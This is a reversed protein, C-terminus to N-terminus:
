AQDLARAAGVLAPSVDATIVYLPIPRLYAAMRGKAEFRERLASGPLLPLLRPVIGGGIYVGGRAGLTLALNGAVGGLLACFMAVTRVCLADSGDLARATIDAAACPAGGLAALLNELGQGSLAREASVHGFRERLRSIAREEEENAAPLSVHGGEGDLAIQVRGDGAFVLGSVGLGTGPGILGLPEGPEPAGGGFQVREHPGLAPLALALAQFDNIVILREFGLEARTAEISFTWHHNTMQVRDGTVPNAMGICADRVAALGEDRLYRRVAHALSPEAETGYRRVRGPAAGPAEQLAFRVNTGGVDGLLRPYPSAPM